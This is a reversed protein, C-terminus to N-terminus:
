PLHLAQAQPILPSEKRLTSPDVNESGLKKKSLPVTPLPSANPLSTLSTFLIYREPKNTGKVRNPESFSVKIKQLSHDKEFKQVRVRSALM